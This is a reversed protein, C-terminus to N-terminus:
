VLEALLTPLPLTDNNREQSRHISSAEILPINGFHLFQCTRNVADWVPRGFLEAEFRRTHWELPSYEMQPECRRQYWPTM